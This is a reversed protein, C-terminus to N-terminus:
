PVSVMRRIHRVSFSKVASAGTASSVGMTPLLAATSAIATIATWVLKRNIFFRARLDADILIQFLYSTAAAVVIGTDKATDDGASSNVAYWNASAALTGTGAPGFSTTADTDFLFLAQNADTAVVGTDTLKWGFYFQTFTIAPLQIRAELLQVKNATPPVGAAAGWASATFPFLRAEDADAASTTRTAITVGGRTAFTPTPVTGTGTISFHLDKQAATAGVPPLLDFPDYLNHYEPAASGGPRSTGSSIGNTGEFMLQERVGFKYNTLM